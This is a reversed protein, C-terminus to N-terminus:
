ETASDDQELDDIQEHGPRASWWHDCDPHSGAFPVFCPGTLYWGVRAPVDLDWLCRSEFLFPAFNAHSNKPACPEPLYASSVLVRM